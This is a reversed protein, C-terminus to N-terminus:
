GTVPPRLSLDASIRVKRAQDLGPPEVVYTAGDGGAKPGCGAVGEPVQGAARPSAEGFGIDCADSRRDRGSMRFGGTGAIGAGPIAPPAPAGAACEDRKRRFGGRDARVQGLAGVLADRQGGDVQGTGRDPVLVAAVAQGVGDAVLRDTLDAPSQAPDQAGGWTTRCAREADAVDSLEDGGDVAASRLANAVGGEDQEAEGTSQTTRLKGCEGEGVDLGLGSTQQETQAAGLGVGIPSTLDDTDGVALVGEGVRDGGEIGPEGQTAGRGPREERAHARAQGRGHGYGAVRHGADDLVPGCGGPKADLPDARVRQAGTMGGARGQGSDADVPDGGLGPVPADVDEDLAVDAGHM